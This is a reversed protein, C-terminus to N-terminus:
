NHDPKSGGLKSMARHLLGTSTKAYIMTTSINSHGLIDKIVAFDVGAEALMTGTTHRLDHLRAGPLKAIRAALKFKHSVRGGTMNRWVLGVDRIEGLAEIAADVLPVIRSKDRKSKIIHIHPPEGDEDLHVDAWTLNLAEQRRLGTYIYFIWLRRWYPDKEAKLLEKVQGPGLARREAPPEVLKEIKPTSVLYGWDVATNLAKKIHRLYSNVTRASVKRDLLARSWTALKRPTLSRLLLSEGLVGALSKLAQKDRRWTDAKVRPPKRHESYEATFSGLTHRSPDLRLLDSEEAAKKMAAFKKLALTRDSTGLSRKAEGHRVYYVGGRRYLKM